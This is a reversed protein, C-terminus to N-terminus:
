IMVSFVLQIDRRAGDVRLSLDHRNLKVAEMQKGGLLQLSLVGKRDLRIGGAAIKQRESAPLRLSLTDGEEPRFDMFEDPLDSLLEIVFKDAGPGGFLIDFGSGGILTDDGAGGRIENDGDLRRIEDDGDTGAVVDNRETDNIRNAAPGQAAVLLFFLGITALLKIAM